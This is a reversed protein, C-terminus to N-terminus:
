RLGVFQRYTVLGRRGAGGGHAAPTARGSGPLWRPASGGRRTPPCAPKGPLNACAPALYPNGRGSACVSTRPAAVPEAVPEAAWQIQWSYCWGCLALCWSGPSVGGLAAKHARLARLTRLWLPQPQPPPILFCSPPQIAGLVRRVCSGRVVGCQSTLVCSM